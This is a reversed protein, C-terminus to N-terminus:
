RVATGPWRGRDSAAAPLRTSSRITLAATTGCERPTRPSVSCTTPWDLRASAWGYSTATSVTDAPSVSSAITVSGAVPPGLYVTYSEEVRSSLLPWRALVLTYAWTLNPPPRVKMSVPPLAGDGPPGVSLPSVVVGVRVSPEAAWGTVNEAVTAPAAVVPSYKKSSEAFGAPVPVENVM